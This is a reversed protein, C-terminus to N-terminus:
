QSLIQMLEDETCGPGLNAIFLTSCQNGEQQQTTYVDLCFVSDACISEKKPVQFDWSFLISIECYCQLFICLSSVHSMRVNISDVAKETETETSHIDVIGFVLVNTLLYFRSVLLLEVKKTCWFCWGRKRRVRPRGCRVTWRTWKRRFRFLLRAIFIWDKM